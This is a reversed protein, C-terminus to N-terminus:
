STTSGSYLHQPRAASDAPARISAISHAWCLTLRRPPYAPSGMTVLAGDEFRYLAAEEVGAYKNLLRLVGAHAGHADLTLLRAAEDFVTSQSDAVEALRQELTSKTEKLLLCERTLADVQARAADGTQRLRASEHETAELAACEVGNPWIPM